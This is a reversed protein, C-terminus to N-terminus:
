QVIRVARELRRSAHSARRQVIPQGIGAGTKGVQVTPLPWHEIGPGIKTDLRDMVITPADSGPVGCYRNLM